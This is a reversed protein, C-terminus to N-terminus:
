RGHHLPHDVAERRNGEGSGWLNPPTTMYLRRKAKVFDKKHVKIFSSEAEDHLIAGTSRRAEDCIILNFDPLDYNVQTKNIVDISHYTSFIVSMLRAEHTDQFRPLPSPSQQQPINSNM